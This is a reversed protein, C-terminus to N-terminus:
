GHAIDEVECVSSAGASPIKLQGYAIKQLACQEAKEHAIPTKFPEILVLPIERPYPETITVGNVSIEEGFMFNSNASGGSSSLLNRGHSFSGFFFAPEEPPQLEVNDRTLMFIATSIEPRDDPNLQVCMLGVHVCRLQQNRTHQNLKQDMMQSITGKKWHNWVETILNVTNSDDSWCEKRRTVIQLILVGYSFIDIKPSVRRHYVYEPAMYGPTGAAGSTMTHTHGEGLLRALGFDAIKPDMDEDLLINNPKLDRHIIRMSSDEHLYLMGKAIGLIINYQQEWALTHGDRTNSLFNDLSGNKIYEYVLLTDDRHSYFGHLRVLNKHQLEALLLVENHLQHLGHGATGVLKKVAIEKGDPLIGKYVAGFGGEGLKNRQSFNDTAEELTPLDFITCQARSIKKFPNDRKTAKIRRRSRIFVSVSLISILVLSCAVGVSIGAASTKKKEPGFTDPTTASTPSPPAELQLMAQGEYFPSVGYRLGCWEVRSTVWPPTAGMHTKIQSLLQGLCGSCQAPTLLPVCQALVYIRPDFEVEGTAFYKKANPTSNSSAVARASVASLIATAAASFWDAAVAPVRRNESRTVAGSLEGVQWQEAKLFDLFQRNAFRLVCDDEYM